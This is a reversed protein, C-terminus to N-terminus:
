ECRRRPCDCRARKRTLDSEPPPPDSPPPHSYHPHFYHPRPPPARTPPLPARPPWSHAPDGPGPHTMACNMERRHGQARLLTYALSRPAGASGTTMACVLEHLVTGLRAGLGLHVQDDRLVGLKGQVDGGVVHIRLHAGVVLVVSRKKELAVSPDPADLIRQCCAPAAVLRAGSRRPSEERATCKRGDGKGDTVWEEHGKGDDRTVKTTWSRRWGQGEGDMVKVM